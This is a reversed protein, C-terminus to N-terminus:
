AAKRHESEIRGDGRHTDDSIRVVDDLQPTSVEYLVLDTVAEIRHLTLPLVHVAVPAKLARRAVHEPKVERLRVAPDKQYHLAARGSFLANTEQKREHFQLSTRNGARLFIKKFAFAPDEGTIWLEYGWPKDVRKVWQETKCELRPLTTASTLSPVSALFLATRGELVRPEGRCAEGFLFHGPELWAWVDGVELRVAQPGANTLVWRKGDVPPLLGGERMQGFFYFYPRESLTAGAPRLPIIEAGGLRRRM